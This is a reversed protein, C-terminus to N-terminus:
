LRSIKPFINESVVAESRLWSNIATMLALSAIVTPTKSCVATMVANGDDAPQALLGIFPQAVGIGGPFHDGGQPFMWRQFDAVQQFGLAVFDSINQPFGQLVFPGCSPQIILKQRENFPLRDHQFFIGALQNGFFFNM